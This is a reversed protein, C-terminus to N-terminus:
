GCERHPAPSPEVACRLGATGDRLSAMFCVWVDACGHICQAVSSQTAPCPPLYDGFRAWPNFRLRLTRTRGPDTVWTGGIPGTARVRRSSFCPARSIAPSRRASRWTSSRPGWLTRVAAALDIRFGAVPVGQLLPALQRGADRQVRHSRAIGSIEPVNERQCAFPGTM